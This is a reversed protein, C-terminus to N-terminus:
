KLFCIILYRAQKMETHSHNLYSQKDKNIGKNSIRKSLDDLLTTLQPHDHVDEGSIFIPLKNNM